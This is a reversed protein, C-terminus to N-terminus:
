STHFLFCEHNINFQSLLFLIFVNQLVFKKLATKEIYISLKWMTSVSACIYLVMLRGTVNLCQALFVNIRVMQFQM